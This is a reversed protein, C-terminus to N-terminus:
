KEPQKKIWYDIDRFFFIVPEDHYFTGTMLMLHKPEKKQLIADQLSICPEFHVLHHDELKKFSWAGTSEYVTKGDRVFRQSFTDNTNLVFLEKGGAYEGLYSGAILNKVEGLNIPPRNADGSKSCGAAFVALLIM